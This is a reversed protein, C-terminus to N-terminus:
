EFLVLKKKTYVTGKFEFGTIVKCELFKDIKGLSM